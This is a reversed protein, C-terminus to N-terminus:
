CGALTEGTHEIFESKVLSSASRVMDCVAAGSMEGNDPLDEDGILKDVAKLAELMYPSVAFLKAYARDKGTNEITAISKGDQTQVVWANGKKTAKWTNPLGKTKM